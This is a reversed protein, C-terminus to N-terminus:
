GDVYLQFGVGALLSFSGFYGGRDLGEGAQLGLAAASVIACALKPFGKLPAHMRM